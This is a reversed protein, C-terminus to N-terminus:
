VVVHYVIFHKRKLACFLCGKLWWGWWGKWTCNTIWATCFCPWCRGELCLLWASGWATRGPVRWFWTSWVGFYPERKVIDMRNEVQKKIFLIFDTEWVLFRCVILTKLQRSKKWNCCRRIPIITHIKQHSRSTERGKMCRMVVWAELLALWVIFEDVLEKEEHAEVFRKYGPFSLLNLQWISNIIM